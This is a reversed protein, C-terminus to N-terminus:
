EERSESVANFGRPKARHNPKSGTIDDMSVTLLWANCAPANPITWPRGCLRAVCMPCLVIMAMANAIIPTREPWFM